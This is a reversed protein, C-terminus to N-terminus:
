WFGEYDNQGSSYYNPVLNNNKEQDKNELWDNFKILSEKDLKNINNDKKYIDLQQNLKILTKDLDVKQKDSIENNEKYTNSSFHDINIGDNTCIIKNTAISSACSLPASTAITLSSILPLLFLM